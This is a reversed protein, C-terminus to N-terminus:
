YDVCDTTAQRIAIYQQLLCFCFVQINDDKDYQIIYQISARITLFQAKRM